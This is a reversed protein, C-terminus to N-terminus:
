MNDLLKQEALMKLKNVLNQRNCYEFCEYISVPVGKIYLKLNLGSFQQVSIGYMNEIQKIIGTPAPTNSPIVYIIYMMKIFNVIESNYKQLLFGRVDELSFKRISQYDFVIKNNSFIDTLFMVDIFDILLECFQLIKTCIEESSDKILSDPFVYDIDTYLMNFGNDPILNNNNKFMHIQAINPHTPNSRFTVCAEIKTPLPIQYINYKFIVKTPTQSITEILPRKTTAHTKLVNGMTFLINHLYDRDINLEANSIAIFDFEYIHPLPPSNNFKYRKLIFVPNEKISTNRDFKIIHALNSVCNYTVSLVDSSLYVQDSYLKKM